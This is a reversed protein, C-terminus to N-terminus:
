KKRKPTYVLLRALQRYGVVPYLKAGAHSALLVAADAGGARDDRLMQCLLSRAIGRRRYETRVFMNHCWTAASTHVSSVWGVIDDGDLAVYSRIPSDPRVDEARLQRQGAAQNLCDAMDQSDVRLVPLPGSAKPIRRMQHAMLFESHGLRYGLEKFQARLAEEDQDPTVLVCLCFHGDTKSRVLEDVSDPAQKHCVYEERRTGRKRPEDYMRWLPGVQQSLYPHTYSRTFCYGSVFAQVATEIPIM